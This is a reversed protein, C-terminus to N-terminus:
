QDNLSGNFPVNFCDCAQLHVFRQYVQKLTKLVIAM